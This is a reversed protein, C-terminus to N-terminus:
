SSASDVAKPDRQRASRKARLEDLPNARSGDRDGGKLVLARARPTILLSELTALLLPGLKEMRSDDADIARAYTVALEAAAKDPGTLEKVARRVLTALTAM